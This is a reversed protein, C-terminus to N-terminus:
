FAGEGSGAVVLGEGTEQVPLFLPRELPTKNPAHIALLLQGDLTYFLMGHGGDGSFLAKEQHRWPGLVNGNESVSLGIAYGTETLSSWLMYLKGNAPRYLFPGDTVHGRAGSSHTVERTWKVDRAAFLAVPEGFPGSLDEKLRLACVTGGGEQVWEHCFVIWPMGRDDVFLTGDLCEWASPTVRETGWPVFPGLPGDARLIATGRRLGPAKFSAFLYYGGRYKHLEPAWFNETGWFTEGPAFVRGAAAFGKLDRSVYAEFGDAGGHWCDADTTGYLYYTGNETFVFPDRMHIDERRLM